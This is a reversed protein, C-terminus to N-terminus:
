APSAPDGNRNCPTVLGPHEQHMSAITRTIEAPEIGGARNEYPHDLVWVLMLGTVVMATVAAMLSGQVLASERRATFLLVFAINILGGVVLVFWVPSTIVPTAESLRERRGRTREDKEVLLQRFAAQRKPTQVDLTLFTLKLKGVWRQVESSRRQDRMRPWGYHVVARAYCLLEGQLEDRQAAPFFEATRFQELVAVAEAEAGAKASNYSQFAVLVVFALVVAFATGVMGYIGSGRTSDALFTETRAFRRVALMLAVSAAVSVVVVLAM